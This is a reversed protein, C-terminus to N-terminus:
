DYLLVAQPMGWVKAKWGIGFREAMRVQQRTCHRKAAILKWFTHASQWDFVPTIVGTSRSM